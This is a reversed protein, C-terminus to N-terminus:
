LNKLEKKKERESFYIEMEYRLIECKKERIYNNVLKRLFFLLMIFVIVFVLLVSIKKWSDQMYFEALINILGSPVISIIDIVNIPPNAAIKDNLIFLVSCVIYFLGYSFIVILIDLAKTISLNKNYDENNYIIHGSKICWYIIAGGSLAMGLISLSHYWTIGLFLTYYVRAMLGLNHSWIGPNSRATSYFGYGVGFSILFFLFVSFIYEVKKRLVTKEKQKMLSEFDKHSIGVEIWEEFKFPFYSSLFYSLFYLM